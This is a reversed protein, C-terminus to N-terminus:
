LITPPESGLEPLEIVLKFPSDCQECIAKRMVSGDGGAETRTIRHDTAGCSPCAPLTVFVFPADRWRIREHRARDVM